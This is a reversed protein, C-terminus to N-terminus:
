ATAKMFKMQDDIYDNKYVDVYNCLRVPDEGERAHKDVNSVRMDAVNQLRRVEWHAPAELMWAIGTPKMPANPDLGRTVARDIIAQRREKLLAILREKAGIYRGIREGVHDLYRVIATQEPRPPLPVLLRKLQGAYIHMVTIGRGM